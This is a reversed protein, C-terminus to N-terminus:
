EKVRRNWAEIMKDKRQVRTAIRCKPNTCAVFCSRADTDPNPTVLEARSGCFPCPKLLEGETM